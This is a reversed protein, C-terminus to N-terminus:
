YSKDAKEEYLVLAKYFLSKDGLVSLSQSLSFAITNELNLSLYILM